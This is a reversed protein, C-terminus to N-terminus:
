CHDNKNVFCLLLFFFFVCVFISFQILGMMDLRVTNNRFVAFTHYVHLQSLFHVSVELFQGMLVDSFCEIQSVIM